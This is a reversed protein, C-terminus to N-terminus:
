PACSGLLLRGSVPILLAMGHWTSNSHVPCWDARSTHPSSARSVMTVLLQLPVFVLQPVHFPLDMVKDADSSQLNLIPGTGRALKAAGSLRLAKRALIDSLGAQPM